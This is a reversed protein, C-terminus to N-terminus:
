FNRKAMLNTYVNNDAISSYEDPGTVGDIRFEGAADFYGLSAWLRASEVLLETSFRRAYDDNGAVTQFRAVADAVDATM